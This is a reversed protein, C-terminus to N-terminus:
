QPTKLKDVSEYFAVLKDYEEYTREALDPYARELFRNRLDLKYRFYLSQNNFPDGEFQSYPVETVEDPTSFHMSRKTVVIRGDGQCKRCTKHETAYERKHYDVLEDVTRYGTGECQNCSVIESSEIMNGNVVEPLDSWGVLPM